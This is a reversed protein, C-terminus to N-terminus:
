ITAEIAWNVAESERDSGRDSGYGVWNLTGISNVISEIAEVVEEPDCGAM